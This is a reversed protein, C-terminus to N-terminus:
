WLYPLAMALRRGTVAEGRVGEIVRQVPAFRFEGLMRRLRQETKGLNRYHRLRTSLGARLRPQAPDIEWPHLYFIVPRREQENVRRIGWRTWGYPLLRFYGGGAIPLNLPGMRVTSAPVEILRGGERELV